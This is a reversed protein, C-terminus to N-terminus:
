FAITAFLSWRILRKSARCVDVCRLSKNRAFLTGLTLDHEHETECNFYLTLDCINRCEDALSKIGELSTSDSWIVQINKCYEAVLSLDCNGWDSTSRTWSLNIKELYRGCRQLINEIVNSDIEVIVHYKGSPKLGLSNTDLAKQLHWSNKALEQWTRSVREIRIRDAVPLQQFILMKIEPSLKEIGCISNELSM